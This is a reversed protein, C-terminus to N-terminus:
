PTSKVLKWIKGSKNGLAGTQNTLLYLEGDKDEGFAWVFAGISPGSHSEPELQALTWKSDAGKTAAFLVGQPLAFHKSWDAFIYKGTLQPLAKGRYVYGGTVSKGKGTQPFAAVNEYVLIPDM